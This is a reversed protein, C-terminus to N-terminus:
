FLNLCSLLCVYVGRRFLNSVGRNFYELVDGREILFDNTLTTTIYREVNCRNSVYGRWADQRLWAGPLVLGPLRIHAHAILPTAVLTEYHM